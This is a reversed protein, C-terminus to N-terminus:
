QWPSYLSSRMGRVLLLRFFTAAINRIYHSDSDNNIKCCEKKESDAIVGTM